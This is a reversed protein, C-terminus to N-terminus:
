ILSVHMRAQVRSCRWDKERQITSVLEVFRPSGTPKDIAEGEAYQGRRIPLIAGSEELQVRFLSVISRQVCSCSKTSVASRPLRDFAASCSSMDLAAALRVSLERSSRRPALSMSRVVRRMHSVSAPRSYWRRHVATIESNASASEIAESSASLGLPTSRTVLETEKAIICM